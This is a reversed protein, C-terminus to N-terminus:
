HQMSKVIRRGENRVFGVLDIQVGQEFAYIDMPEIKLHESCPSIKPHPIMNENRFYEIVSNRTVRCFVTKFHTRAFRMGAAVFRFTDPSHERLHAYYLYLEAPAFGQEYLWCLVAMSNIGGSLGILIKKGDYM